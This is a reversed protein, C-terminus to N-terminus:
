VARFCGVVHDDVLGVAQMFAYCITPGVFNFGRKRLDKSLAQSLETQAQLESLSSPRNVIPKGGVFGWLYKDFSGFEAQVKQFAQASKIASEIKGRHRIIGEDVLLRDVDAPGFSAVKAIDWDAFAKTFGERRRLITQWSLGAQFGELILMEFLHRDDHSPVGWEEDHYAIMLPDSVAWGCRTIQETDAM